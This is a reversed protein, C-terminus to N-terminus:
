PVCKTFRHHDAIAPGVAMFHFDEPAGINSKLCNFNQEEMLIKKDLDLLGQVKM